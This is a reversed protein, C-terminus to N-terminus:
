GVSSRSLYVSGHNGRGRGTYYYGEMTTDSTLRLRATGHHIQMAERAGPLPENQYEYDLVVGEPANTFVGALISYSRSVEGDLSIRIRSWRQEIRIRIEHQTRFEDFSSLVYGRWEGDIVPVKIIGMRRVSPWRWWYKDFAGYFLGYLLPVSTIDVWGPISFKFSEILSSLSLSLAIAIAVLLLPVSMREDSDTIYAHM